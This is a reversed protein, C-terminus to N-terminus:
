LPSSLTIRPVSINYSVEDFPLLFTIIPAATAVLKLPLPLTIKPYLAAASEIKKFVLLLNIM